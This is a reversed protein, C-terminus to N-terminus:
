ARGPGGANVLTLTTVGKMKEGNYEKILKTRALCCGPFCDSFIIEPLDLSVAKAVYLYQGENVRLLHKKM